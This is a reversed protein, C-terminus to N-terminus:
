LRETYTQWTISIPKVAWGNSVTVREASFNIVEVCLGSWQLETSPKFAQNLLDTMKNLPATGLHSAYNVDIQYIGSHKDSFYLDADEVPAPLLFGSLYPKSTDTPAGINELAVIINNAVGFRKLASDLAKQISEFTM